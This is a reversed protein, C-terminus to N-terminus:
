SACYYKSKEKLAVIGMIATIILVYMVTPARLSGSFYYSMDLWSIAVSVVVVYAIIYSIMRGLIQNRNDFDDVGYAILPTIRLFAGYYFGMSLLWFQHFKDVTFLGYFVFASNEVISVVYLIVALRSPNVVKALYYMLYSGAFGLLTVHLVILNVEVLSWGWYLHLINPIRIIVLVVLLASYSIITARVLIYRYYKKITYILMRKRFNFGVTDKFSHQTKLWICIATLVSNFILQLRLADEFHELSIGHSLLIRNVFIAVFIGVECSMMIFSYMPLKNKIKHTEFSALKVIYAIQMGFFTTIFIRTIFFYIADLYGIQIYVPFIALMILAFLQGVFPLNDTYSNRKTCYVFLFGFIKSFQCILFTITVLPICEYTSWEPLLAPRLYISYGVFLSLDYCDIYAVLFILFLVQLPIDRLYSKRTINFNYSIM